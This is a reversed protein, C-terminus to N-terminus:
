DVGLARGLGVVRHIAFMAILTLVLLFSGGAMVLPDYNEQLYAYLAVPFTTSGPANLFVAIGAEDFSIIFAFLCGAALPARLQPLLVRWFVTAPKAGLTAAALEIDRDVKAIGVSALRVVFALGLMLQAAGILLPNGVLGVEAAISLFAIGLAIAPVSLPALILGEFLRKGRLSYRTIAFAAATGILGALIAVSVSLVLSLRLAETFQPTDLAMRLWKTSFGPPPFSVYKASTLAEAVVVFMPSLMFVAVVFLFLSGVYRRATSASMSM